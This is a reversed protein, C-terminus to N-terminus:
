KLNTSGFGKEGRSTSGLDEVVVFKPKAIPKVVGQAVRMGVEVKFPKDSLNWLKIKVEGRYDSDITGNHAIIDNKFGLGSRGRIELEYGEPIEFALGTDIILSDVKVKTFTAESLDCELEVGDVVKYGVLMPPKIVGETLSIFDFGVAGDTMYQPVVSIDRLKKIRVEM